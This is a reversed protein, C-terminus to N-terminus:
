KITTPRSLIKNRLYNIVNQDLINQEELVQIQKYLELKKINRQDIDSILRKIRIEESEVNISTENDM